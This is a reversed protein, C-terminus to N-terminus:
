LAELVEIFKEVTKESDHHKTTTQYISEALRLREDEDELYYRLKKEFNDKNIAVFNRDPVLHNEKMDYPKDSMIMTKCAGGEWFKALAKKYRGVGFMFIKSSALARAYELWEECANLVRYGGPPRPKWNYKIDTTSDLFRKIKCRLPYIRNYAGRFIVEYERTEYRPKYLGLYVSHPMFYVPANLRPRWSDLEKILPSTILDFKRKNIFKIRQEKRAHVDEVRFLVKPIKLKDVNTWFPRSPRANDEVLVIDPKVKGAM